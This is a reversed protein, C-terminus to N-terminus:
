RGARADPWVADCLMRDSAYPHILADVLERLPDAADIHDNHGETLVITHVRRGNAAVAIADRAADVVMVEDDDGVLWIDNIVDWEGGDVAIIGNTRILEITMTDAKTRLDAVELTKEAFGGIVHAPYLITGDTLTM